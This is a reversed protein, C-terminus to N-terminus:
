ATEEHHQVFTLKYPCHHPVIYDCILQLAREEIDADDMFMASIVRHVLVEEDLFEIDGFIVFQKM